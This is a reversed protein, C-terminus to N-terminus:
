CVQVCVCLYACVCVGVNAFRSVGVWTLMSCTVQVVLNMAEAFVQVCVCACVCLHARM